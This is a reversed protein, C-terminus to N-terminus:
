EGERIPKRIGLAAESRCQQCQLTRKRNDHAVVEHGCELRLVTTKITLGEEAGKSSCYIKGGHQEVVRRPYSLRSM